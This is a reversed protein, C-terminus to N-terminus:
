RGRLAEAAQTRLIRRTPGLAAVFGVAAVVLVEAAIVAPAAGPTLSVGSLRFSAIALTVGIAVGAALQMLARSFVAAIIRGSSAGLAVRIGIERRRQSVTFSMLAYIGVSSLLVVSATVGLLVAAELRSIWHEKRLAEDLSRIDRLVAAEDLGQSAHHNEMHAEFRRLRALQREAHALGATLLDLASVRM